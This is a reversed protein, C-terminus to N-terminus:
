HSSPRNYRTYKSKGGKKIFTSFINKKNKYTKRTGGRQDRYMYSIFALFTALTIVIGTSVSFLDISNATQISDRNRTSITNARTNRKYTIIDLTGRFIAFAERKNKSNQYLVREFASLWNIFGRSPNSSCKRCTPDIIFIDQYGMDRFITLLESLYIENEDFMKDFNNISEISTIPIKQRWYNRTSLTMHLNANIRDTGILSFRYDESRPSYPIETSIITLGYEPSMIKSPDRIPICRECKKSGKGCVDKAIKM